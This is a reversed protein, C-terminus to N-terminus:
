RSNLLYPDGSWEKDFRLTRGSEIGADQAARYSGPAAPQDGRDSIFPGQLDIEPQGSSAALSPQTPKPIVRDYDITLDLVEDQRANGDPAAGDSVGPEEALIPQAILVGILALVAFPKM